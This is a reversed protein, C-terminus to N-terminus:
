RLPSGHRMSPNNEPSGRVRSSMDFCESSVESKLRRVLYDRKREYVFYLWQVKSPCYLASWEKSKEPQAFICSISSPATYVLPLRWQTVLASEVNFGLLVGDSEATVSRSDTVSESLAGHTTKPRPILWSRELIPRSILRICASYVLFTSM